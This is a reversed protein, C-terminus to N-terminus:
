SLATPETTWILQVFLLTADDDHKLYNPDVSCVIPNCWWWTKFYDFFLVMLVKMMGVYPTNTKNWWRSDNFTWTKNECGTVHEVYHTNVILVLTSIQCYSNALPLSCSHRIPIYSINYLTTFSGQSIQSKAKKEFLPFRADTTCM